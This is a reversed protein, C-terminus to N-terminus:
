LENKTNYLRHTKVLAYHQTNTMIIDYLIIESGKFIGM